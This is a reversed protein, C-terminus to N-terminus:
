VCYSTNQSWCKQVWHFWDSNNILYIWSNFLLYHFLYRIWCGSLSTVLITMKWWWNMFSLIILYLKPWIVGGASHKHIQSCQVMIQLDNPWCKCLYMTLFRFCILFFFFPLTKICVSSSTFKLPNLEKVRQTALPLDHVLRLLIELKSTEIAGFSHEYNKGESLIRTEDETM